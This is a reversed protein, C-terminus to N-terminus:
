RGTRVLRLRYVIDLLGPGIGPGPDYSISCTTFDLTWLVWLQNALGANAPTPGATSSLTHLVSPPGPFLELDLAPERCALEAISALEKINPARWDQLGTYGGLGPLGNPTLADRRYQGSALSVRARAPRQPGNAEAGGEAASLL